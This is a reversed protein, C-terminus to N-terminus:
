NSPGDDDIAATWERVDEETMVGRPKRRADEYGWPGVDVLYQARSLLTGQCVHEPTPPQQEERQLRDLLEQMVDRPISDRESPYVFRFLILHSLLVRWHPGFRSLLHDWDLETARAHLLHAVDAGDYRERDMIFAKQWIIEESPCIQVPIGLVAHEQARMFWAEDVECIGNGSNFILDITDYGARAKALWHRATVESVYGANALAQQARDLDNHRLFLDLDKTHRVIGTYHGFAYAGGVLFPVRAGQLACMVDTYFIATDPPLNGVVAPTNEDM